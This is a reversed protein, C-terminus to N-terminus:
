RAARLTEVVPVRAVKGIERQHDIAFPREQEARAQAVVVRREGAVEGVRLEGLRGAPRIHWVVENMQAAGAKKPLGGAALPNTNAVEVLPTAPDLDGNLKRRIEDVEELNAALVALAPAVKVTGLDLFGVRGHAIGAEIVAQAHRRKAEIGRRRKESVTEGNVRHIKARAFDREIKM